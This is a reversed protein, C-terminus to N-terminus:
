ERAEEQTTPRTRGNYSNRRGRTSDLKGKRTSITPTGEIGALATPAKREGILAITQAERKRSAERLRKKANTNM